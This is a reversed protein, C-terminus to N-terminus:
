VLDFSLDDVALSVLDLIRLVVSLGPGFRRGRQLIGALQRHPHAGRLFVFRRQFLGNGQLDLFASHVARAHLDDVAFGRDIHAFARAALRRLDTRCLLSAHVLKEAHFRVPLPVLDLVGCRLDTVNEM